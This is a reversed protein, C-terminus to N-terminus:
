SISKRLHGKQKTQNVTIIENVHIMDKQQRGQHKLGHALLDFTSGGQPIKAVYGIEFFVIQPTRM